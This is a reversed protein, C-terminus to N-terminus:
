ENGHIRLCSGVMWLCSDYSTNYWYMSYHRDCRLWGVLYELIQAVACSFVVDGERMYLQVMYWPADLGDGYCYALLSMTPKGPNLEILSFSLRILESHCGGVQRVMSLSIWEGPIHFYTYSKPLYENSIVVCCSILTGSTSFSSVVLTGTSTCTTHSSIPLFFFHM